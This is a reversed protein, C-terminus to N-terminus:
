PCQILGQAWLCGGCTPFTNGYCDETNGLSRECGGCFTCPSFDFLQVRQRFQMHEPAYWLESLTRELVNGLVYRRSFRAHGNLYSQYNHLLPLCPSTDGNWGIALTGKEIFPCRDNAQGLGLGAFHTYRGVRRMQYLPDRTLADLDLKPMYLHPVWRSPLYTIDKLARRYLIEDQMEPTHPLLNTVMFRTAGLRGGLRLVAPLDAINRKMAVFAIGIQPSPPHVIRRSDRFGAVNEIVQPLRAGLRVDAYSEPTAGDLSVWLVDLGVDILQRSLDRNLQTGNTILEVRAGTQKARAVMEVIHPHSLPEGYGGFSIAVLSKFGELGEMIRDFTAASMQGYPEDWVNRVCTKCTLNCQNTPEIYVWSLQDVPRRVCLGQETTTLQVQTGPALGHTSAFDAPLVLRGQDDIHGWNVPKVSM